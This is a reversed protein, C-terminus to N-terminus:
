ANCTWCPLSSASGVNRTRAALQKVAVTRGIDNDRVLSVEGMAGAGLKKIRQYRTETRPKLQISEGAGEIDPLITTNRQSVADSTKGLLALTPGGVTVPSRDAEGLAVAAVTESVAAESQTAQLEAPLKQRGSARVVPFSPMGSM